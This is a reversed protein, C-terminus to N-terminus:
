LSHLPAGLVLLPIPNGADDKRNSDATSFVPDPM